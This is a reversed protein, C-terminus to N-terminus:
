ISLGKILTKVPLCDKLKLFCARAIKADDLAHHRELNQGLGSFSLRDISPDIGCARFLTNLDIAAYHNLYDPLDYLAHFSASVPNGHKYLELFLIYDQLLGCSVM